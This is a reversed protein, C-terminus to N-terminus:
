ITNKEYYAFSLTQVLMFSCSIFVAFGGTQFIINMFISIVVIMQTITKTAQFSKYGSKFVKLQEAEDMSDVFEKDFSVKTPDGKLREDNAQIYKVISVQLVTAFSIGVMFLVLLTSTDETTKHYFMGYQMFNVAIFVGVISMSLDLYGAKKRIEDDIEDEDSSMMNSYAKKGVFYLSTAPLFFLMMIILNILVTHNFLVNELSNSLETDFAYRQTLLVIALIGGVIISAMFKIIIRFKTKKDM